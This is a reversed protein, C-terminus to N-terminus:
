PEWRYIRADGVVGVLRLESAPVRRVSERAEAWNTPWGARPHVPGTVIYGGRVDAATPVPDIRRAERREEANAFEPDVARPIRLRERATYTRLKAWWTYSETAVPRPPLERLRDAVRGALVVDDPIFTRSPLSWLAAATIVALAVPALFALRGDVALAVLLAFPITCLTLYRIPKALNVLTGFELYLGTWALWVGPLVARRDRRYVLVCMAGIAVPALLFLASGADLTARGIAAAYSADLSFASVPDRWEGETGAGILPRLPEGAGIAFTIAALVPMVAVGAAGTALGRRGAPWGAMLVIPTMVLASERVSWAAGLALGALAAGPLWGRGARLALWVALGILGPMIADPRLRAGALAELPAVAVLAAAVLGVRRSALDRGLLYAAVLSVLSGVLPWITATVDGAGLIHFIGAVPWILVIRTGFWETDGEPFFGNALNQAVGIFRSEDSGYSFSPGTFAAARVAVGVLLIAGLAAWTPVARRTM